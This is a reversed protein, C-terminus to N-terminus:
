AARERGYRWWLGVMTGTLVLGVLNATILAWDMIALGYALWLVLGLLMVALFTPSVDALRKTRYGRVIQPLFSTSTLAGAVLGVIVWEV